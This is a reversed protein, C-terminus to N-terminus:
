IREKHKEENKPPTGLSKGPMGLMRILTNDRDVIHHKLAAAAHMGALGMLAWAAALHLLGLMDAQHKDFAMLAPAVFWGFVDVGKGEGTPILYGSLMIIFMLLYHTRHVSLAVIQEWWQGMLAPRPNALRWILRFVLLFLLLMGVSKHVEPARHYWDDYYDLGTMWLGLGFMGFIALAMMWHVAISVWGYTDATNKLM